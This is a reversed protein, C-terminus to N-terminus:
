VMTNEDASLTGEFVRTGTPTPITITVDSGVLETTANDLTLKATGGDPGVASLEVLDGNADFVAEYEFGEFEGPDEPTM